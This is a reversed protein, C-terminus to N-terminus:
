VTGDYNYDDESMIEKEYYINTCILPKTHNTPLEKTYKESTNKSLSHSAYYTYKQM